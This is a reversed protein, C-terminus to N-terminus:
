LPEANANITAQGRVRFSSSSGPAGSTQVATVGAARGQLSQDLNTIMSGKLADENLSASAGALDSKKMTGYGVVVLENLNNESEHMTVELTTRGNLAIELTEMGVYSFVLTAKNSKVNISFNGDIDTVAGNSTVGKETVSGGIIPDGTSDYVTGKVTVQASVGMAIVLFLATLLTRFNLNKSTMM